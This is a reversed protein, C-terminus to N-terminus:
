ELKFNEFISIIVHDRKLTVVQILQFEFQQIVITHLNTDDNLKM